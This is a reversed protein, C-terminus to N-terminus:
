RFGNSCNFGPCVGFNAQLEFTFKWNDNSITDNFWEPGAMLKINPSFYYAIAAGAGGISNVGSCYDATIEWKNYYCGNWMWEKIFGVQYGLM